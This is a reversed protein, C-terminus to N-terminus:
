RLFEKNDIVWQEIMEKIEIFETSGLLIRQDGLAKSYSNILWRVCEHIIDELWADSREREDLKNACLWIVQANPLSSSERFQELSVHRLKYVIEMVELLIVKISNDRALLIKQRPINGGVKINMVEHLNHFLESFYKFWLSEDFFSEVPFRIDRNQLNPPVSALLHAKGGNQNNLVSINQPKTGGYGITTLDYIESYGQESFQNTKKLDRKAKVEESFRMRDLRQRLEFVMGSNTLVSLQHYNTNVPFYVQKIKSSTIVEGESRQVMALFGSKLEEYTATSITLLQKAQETDAAIHQLLTLGDHLKLNLFKYVDLTAANGLADPEIAVNGTRLYGDEVRPKDAITSTVYGNKNKRASPHSFTCPHTAITIQGARNAADPLWRVLNFTNECEQKIEAIEELSATSNINKKLWAEKRQDFFDKITADLM